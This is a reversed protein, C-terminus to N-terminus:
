KADLWDVLLSCISDEIDKAPKATPMHNCLISYAVTPRYERDLIYGSLCSVGAIYGTKALVRGRYPQSTLRREMTGDIGAFPFSELYGKADKRRAAAALVRTM